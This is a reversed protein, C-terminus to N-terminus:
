ASGGEPSAARKLRDALGKWEPTEPVAEIVILEAGLDDCAHLEAYLARAFAQADRPIVSVRELGAGGPIHTHAIVHVGKGELKRAGIKEELEAEDKWKWIKLKARPSYHRAL